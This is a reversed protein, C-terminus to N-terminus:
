IRAKGGQCFCQFSIGIGANETENVEVPFSEPIKGHGATYAMFVLEGQYFFKHVYCSFVAHFQNGAQFIWGESGQTHVGCPAECLFFHFVEKTHGQFNEGIFVPMDSFSAGAKQAMVYAGVAAAGMEAAVAIGIFVPCGYHFVPLLM